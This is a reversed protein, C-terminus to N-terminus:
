SLYPGTIQISDTTVALDVGLHRRRRVSYGAGVRLSGVSASLKYTFICDRGTVQLGIPCERRVADRGAPDVSRV